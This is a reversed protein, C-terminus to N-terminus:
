AMMNQHNCAYELLTHVECCSCRLLVAHQSCHILESVQVIHTLRQVRTDVAKSAMAGKSLKVNEEQIRATLQQVVDALVTEESVLYARLDDSRMRQM